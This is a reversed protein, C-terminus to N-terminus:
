APSYKWTLYAKKGDAYLRLGLLVIGGISIIAPSNEVLTTFMISGAAVLYSTASDIMENTTM